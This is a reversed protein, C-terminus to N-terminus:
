QLFSYVRACHLQAKKRGNNGVKGVFHFNALM